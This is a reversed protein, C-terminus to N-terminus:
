RTVLVAPSAPGWTAGSTTSVRIAVSKASTKASCTTATLPTCDVWTGAKGGSVQYSLPTSLATELPPVIPTFTVTVKGKAKVASVITASAYDPTAEVTASATGAGSINVARVAFGYSTGNTLGTVTAPSTTATVYTGTGATCPTPSCYYIRYGTIASGGNFTPATWSVQVRGDGAITTVNTPADPTTPYVYVDVSATIPGPVYINAEVVATNSAWGAGTATVTITLSAQVDVALTGVTWVGTSPDYAGAGSDSVYTLGASLVNTVTVDASQPGENTVTLTFTVPDGFAVSDHDVGALVNLETSDGLPTTAGTDFALGTIMVDPDHGVFLLLGTVPDLTELVSGVGLYGMPEPRTVTYLHGEADFDAPNNTYGEFFGFSYLADGTLQGTQPSVQQITQGTKVYMTNSGDVALGTGWTSGGSDGIHRITGDLDIRVLDDYDYEDWGYLYGYADFSIDPLQAANSGYPGIATAVGSTTDITLLQQNYNDVAYLLGDLGFDIGTIGVLQTGDLTIPGILTTDGTNPDVEYLNSPAGSLAGGTTYGVAYLDTTNVAPAACPAASLGSMAITYPGTAADAYGTYLWSSLTAVPDDEWPSNNPEIWWNGIALMYAGAPLDAFELLSLPYGAGDDDYHVYYGNANFLYLVSDDGYSTVEATFPGGDVCFRYLDIDDLDLYGDIQTEATEIVQATAPLDGADGVETTAGVAPATTVLMSATLSALALMSRTQRRM